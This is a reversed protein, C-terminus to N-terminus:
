GGGLTPIPLGSPLGLERLGEQGYESAMSPALANLLARQEDSLAQNNIYRNIAGRAPRPMSALGRNISGIGANVTGIGARTIQPSFAGVLGTLIPDVGARHGAGVGIAGWIAQQLRADIGEAARNGLMPIQPTPHTAADLQASARDILARGSGPPARKAFRGGATRGTAGTRAANLADQVAKQADAIAQAQSARSATSSARNMPTLVRGAGAGLATGGAGTLAATLPNEGSLHAEGAGIGANVTAAGPIGAMLRPFIGGVVASPLGGGIVTGIRASTPMGTRYLDLDQRGETGEEPNAFGSIGPIHNILPMSGVVHRAGAIGRRLAPLSTFAEGASAQVRRQTAVEERQAASPTGAGATNTPASSVAKAAADFEAYPDDM